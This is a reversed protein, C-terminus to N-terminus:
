DVRNLHDIRTVRESDHQNTQDQDSEEIPAEAGTLVRINVLDSKNSDGPLQEHKPPRSLWDAM